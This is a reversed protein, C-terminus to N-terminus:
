VKPAGKGSFLAAVSLVTLSWVCHPQTVAGTGISSAVSAALAHGPTIRHIFDPVRVFSGGRNVEPPQQDHM